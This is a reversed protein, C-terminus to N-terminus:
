NTNKRDKRYIYDTDDDTDDDTGDDTDDDTTNEAHHCLVCVHCVDVPLPSQDISFYKNHIM